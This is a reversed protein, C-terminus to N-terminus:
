HFRQGDAALTMWTIQCALLVADGEPTAATGEPCARYEATLNALARQMADHLNEQGYKAAYRAAKELFGAAIDHALQERSEMARAGLKKSEYTM